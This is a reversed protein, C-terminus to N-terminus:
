WVTDFLLEIALAQGVLLWLVVSLRRTSLVAAAAVCALPVFPLWIRETEAKTLGLIAGTIVVAFLALAAPDKQAVARLAMWGIPLGVGILWATPSGLLWYGYPRHRSIGHRYAAGTANLTAIPDYGLALALTCYVAIVALACVAALALARRPGERRMVVLVAWAPIAFLLWSFFTAAAAALAGAARPLPHRRVLLCAAALGLAAFAYDASTIGWLLLAPAFATLVGAIRGRREEGLTRGLDYALPATLAGLGICLITLGEPTDIGLLHLAVLPGPPNGKVHIPLRPILTPFHSVYFPVGHALAPLGPLYEQYAGLSGGPGTKFVAWLDAIGGRSVNLSVGLVLALVYLGAAFLIPRRAWRVWYVAVVASGGLVGLSVLALRGAHPHWHAYFPPFFVGLRGGGAKIWQGVVVTLGALIAGAVPVLELRSRLTGRGPHTAAATV